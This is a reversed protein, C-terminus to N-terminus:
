QEERPPSKWKQQMLKHVDADSMADIRDSTKKFQAHDVGQRKMTEQAAEAEKQATGKEVQSRIYARILWGVGGLLATVVAAAIGYMLGSM